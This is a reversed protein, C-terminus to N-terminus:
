VTGGFLGIDRSQSYLSFLNMFMGERRGREGEKEEEREGKHTHV